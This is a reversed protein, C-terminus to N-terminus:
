NTEYMVRGKIWGSESPAERFLKSTKLEENHYWSMGKTKSMFERRRDPDMASFKTRKTDSMRKVRDSTEKTQGKRESYRARMKDTIEHGLNQKREEPTLKSLWKDIKPRAVTQYTGNPDKMTKSKKIASEAIYSHTHKTRGRLAKSIKNRVELSKATNVVSYAQKLNEYLRSKCLNTRHKSSGSGCLLGYAYIMHQHYIGYFMKTLLRHVMFHERYTLRVINEPCKRWDRKLSVPVIHHKEFDKELIDARNLAKTIIQIYWKTYKSPQATTEIFQLFNM